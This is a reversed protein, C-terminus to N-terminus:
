FQEWEDASAKAVAALRPKRAAAAQAPAPAAVSSRVMKLTAPRAAASAGDSRLKFVSVVRALAASQEQLSAAAAAAQEVLAANQQTVTDMESVAQNIQDIGALQERSAETIGGMIETVRGISAVIETMTAGAAGVLQTGSAVKDVSNGILVKIDKAATASRQALNRVEAAVVAFGRGQEGARAAEVAANLALINTQFAIGDIVSIIEVIKKSADNIENMTGVVQAVVAGGKQAVQSASVALASAQDANDANLRTTTTMEEMSSATEELSSAQQETRTSLDLNGTAIESSATAIADTGSRVQGVIALLADNMRGLARLLSAAENSGTEERFESTLDGAAVTRAVTVARNIPRVISRTIFWASGAGCLLAVLLTALTWGRASQYDSNLQAVHDANSQEQFAIMAELEDMWASQPALVSAYLFATAEDRKGEDALALVKEFLPDVTARSRTLQALIDMGKSSRVLATLRGIADDTAKHANAIRERLKALSEKDSRLLYDRAAAAVVGVSQRMDNAADIKHENETVIVDIHAKTSTLANMGVVTVVVLFAMMLGFAMALRPGIKINEFKM